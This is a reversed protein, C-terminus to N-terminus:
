IYTIYLKAVEEFLDNNESFVAWPLFAFNQFAAQKQPKSPLSVAYSRHRKSYGASCNEREALVSLNFQM